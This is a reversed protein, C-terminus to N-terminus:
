FGAAASLAFVVCSILCPIFIASRAGNFDSGGAAIVYALFFLAAAGIRAFTMFASAKGAAPM